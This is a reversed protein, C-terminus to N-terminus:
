WPRRVVTPLVAALLSIRDLGLKLSEAFTLILHGDTGMERRVALCAWLLLSRGIKGYDIVEEPLAVSSLLTCFEYM